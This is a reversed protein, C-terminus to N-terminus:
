TSIWTGGCFCVDQYSNMWPPTSQYTHLSQDLEIAIQTTMQCRNCWKLGVLSRNNQKLINDINKNFAFRTTQDFLSNYFFKPDTENPNKTYFRPFYADFIPKLSKISNLHNGNLEGTAYLHQESQVQDLTSKQLQSDIQIYYEVLIDIMPRGNSIYKQLVEAYYGHMTHSIEEKGLASMFSKSVQLLELLLLRCDKILIFMWLSGGISKPNEYVQLMLRLLYSAFDLIWIVFAAIHHFSGRKFQTSCDKPNTLSPDSLLSKEFM